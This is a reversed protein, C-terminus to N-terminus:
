EVQRSVFRRQQAMINQCVIVQNMDVPTASRLVADPEGQLQTRQSIWAPGKSGAFQDGM